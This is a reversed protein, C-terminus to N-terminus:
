AIRDRTPFSLEVSTGAGGEVRYSGGHQEVLAGVLLLGLGKREGDQRSPASIGVGDDKVSVRLDEGSRLRIIITGRRGDPFAYKICNTVLENCCYGIAAALKSNLVISPADAILEIRGDDGLFINRIHEVIRGLYDRMDVTSVDESVLLLDYLEAISVVRAQAEDLALRSREDPAQDSEMSLIHGVTALSNKVRHALEKMLRDKEGIAVELRANATELPVTVRRSLAIGFALALVVAAISVAVAVLTSGAARRADEASSERALELKSQVLTELADQAELAAERGPGLIIADAEADRNAEALLTIRDFLEFYKAKAQIFKDFEFRGLETILTRGFSSSVEDLQRRLGAVADRIPGFEGPTDATVLDRASIRIKQFDETMVLLESMPLTIRSYTYANAKAMMAINVIGLVAIAAALLSVFVFAITLRTSIKM